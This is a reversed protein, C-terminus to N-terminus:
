RHIERIFYSDNGAAGATDAFGDGELQGLNAGIDWVADGARVLRRLLRTEHREYIGYFYLEREASSDLDLRLTFGPPIVATVPNHAPLLRPALNRYLLGKGDTVPCHRLYARLLERLPASMSM